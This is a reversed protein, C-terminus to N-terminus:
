AIVRMTNTLAGIGAIEVTCVDGDQLWRPPKRSMGVGAPTGTAILDGPRLTIFQSLHAILTAVDFIMKSTNSHQVLAGNLMCRIELQQPDPIADATVVVPGIPCFGDLTKGLTWQKGSDGLQLDRASLDNVCTYGGVYRLAEDKAVRYCARGIIVGLEAEYDVQQTADACWTIVDGPGAVANPFKAFVVPREPLKAGTERVHDLYNLGIGIIARPQLPAVLRVEDLPIFVTATAIASEAAGRSEPDALLTLVDGIASLDVIGRETLAGSKVTGRHLFTALKM